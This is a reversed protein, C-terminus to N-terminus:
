TLISDICNGCECYRHVAAFLPLRPERKPAALPIPTPQELSALYAIVKAYHENRVPIMIFEAM